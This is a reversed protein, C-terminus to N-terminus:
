GYEGSAIVRRAASTLNGDEVSALCVLEDGRVYGPNQALFFLVHPDRRRGESVGRLEETLAQPRAFRVVGAQPDFASGFRQGALDHTLQRMRADAPGHVSPYYTRFFVSLFRYTRYGKTLLLWYLETSSHRRLAHIGHIWTRALATTGWAAPEVITDGSYVISLSRGRVCTDYLLLTSFGRLTGQEDELLIVWNKEGLDREFTQDDVGHFYRALLDHMASQEKALLEHRAVLRGTIALPARASSQAGAATPMM